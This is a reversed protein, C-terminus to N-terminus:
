PAFTGASALQAFDDIQLPRALLLGAIRLGRRGVRVTGEVTARFGLTLCLFRTTRSCLPREVAM